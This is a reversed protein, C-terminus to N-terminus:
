WVLTELVVQQGEPGTVEVQLRRLERAGGGGYAPSLSARYTYGPYDPFSRAAGLGDSPDLDIGDAALNDRLAYGQGGYQRFWQLYQEMKGQALYVMLSERGAQEGTTFSQSLADMLPIVAVALIVLAM